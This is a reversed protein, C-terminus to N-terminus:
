IMGMDGLKEALVETKSTIDNQYVLWRDEDWLEVRNLLGVVM